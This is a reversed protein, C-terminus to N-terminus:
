SQGAVPWAGSPDPMKRTRAPRCWRLRPWFWPRRRRAQLEGLIELLRQTAREWTFEGLIRERASAQGEDRGDIASRISMIAEDEDPEWWSAGEFLIGSGDGEKFVAPVPRSPILRAVSSDLYTTYASHNPAILKLGSAAAEVMTQDWGEGFSLSIYHTAAAYLKPMAADSFLDYIFHVPAAEDLRKGLEDQLLELRQGFMHRRGPQYCGLKIILVADDSRFTARLWARLLGFLNKRPGLESVNLFRVKYQELRGGDKAQLPFPAVAGSFLSPNIGLPCLRLEDEPVGSAIWARRSSETPLIVLDHIRANAVWGLPIRTAEFMTYNVNLWKADPVVQHPMCFHLMIRAATPKTLSDFWPDRLHAPLTAPGWEPLDILEVAVGQTHLERV